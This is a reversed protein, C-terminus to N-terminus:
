EVAEEGGDTQQRALESTSLMMLRIAEVGGNAPEYGNQELRDITELAAALADFHERGKELKGHWFTIVGEAIDTMEIKYTRNM